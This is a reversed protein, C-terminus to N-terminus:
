FRFQLAEELLLRPRASPLRISDDYREPQSAYCSGDPPGYERAPRNYYYTPDTDAGRSVFAARQIIFITEYDEPTLHQSAWKALGHFLPVGTFPDPYLVVHDEDMALKMATEGNIRYDIEQVDEFTDPFIVDYRRDGRGHAAHLIAIRVCDLMHTCQFRAPTFPSVDHLDISLKCGIMAKVADTAGACATMPRREWRAEVDTVAEGDHSLILALAHAPDEMTLEIRGEGLDRLQWSRFYYGDGYWDAKVM